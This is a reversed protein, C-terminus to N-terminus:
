RKVERKVIHGMIPRVESPSQQSADQITGKSLGLVPDNTPLKRLPLKCVIDQLINIYQIDNKGPV